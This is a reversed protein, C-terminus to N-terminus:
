AIVTNERKWTEHWESDDDDVAFLRLVDTPTLVAVPKDDDDVIYVHHISHRAFLSLTKRLSTSKRAFVLEVFTRDSTVGLSPPSSILRGSDSTEFPREALFGNSAHADTEDDAERAREAADALAADGEAVDSLNM